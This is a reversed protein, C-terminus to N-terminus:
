GTTAEAPTRVAATARRWLSSPAVVARLTRARGVSRRLSGVVSLVDDASVSARGTPRAYGEREVAQAIRRLALVGDNLRRAARTGPRRSAAVVFADELRRAAERPTVTDPVRIGVDEASHLVEVWGLAADAFGRRIARISSRREAFRILAPSATVLLVILALALLWTVASPKMASASGSTNNSGADTDPQGSLPTAQSPRPEEGAANDGPAPVGVTAPNAYDALVGRGTTPEFPLWGIGDFYLEPWSHLDYSTAQYVVEGDVRDPLSEGPLFGVAVRAPIGLSRAMLAMASAFHVCYGSKAQLFAAVVDLGTGDYGNEVPADESYVFDENRLYRQLALAKEYNSAADAVVERATQEIIPPVDDHHIVAFDALQSPVSSGARLLQEPTPDLRLSVVRYEQGARLGADNRVSLSMPDQGWGPGLGGVTSTPYPLPLWPTDLGAIRINTTEESREVLESLGPPLGFDVSQLEQLEATGGVSWTNGDFQDLSLLRLYQGRGSETSYRLAARETDRRLDNGLTIIPSAGVRISGSSADAPGVETSPLLVPAVLACAVATAGIGISLKRAPLPAGVRLLLLFSVIVVLVWFLDFQRQVTFTPIALVVLLPIAVFVRRRFTIALVDCLLAILGVGATLLFLIGQDAEAPITQAVISREATEALVGFWGLTDFTPFLGFLATEAAFQQTLFGFLVVAAVLSPVTRRTVFVRVLAASGLVFFAALLAVFWWGIGQLLVSLTATASMICVLLLISVKWPASPKTVPRESRVIVM